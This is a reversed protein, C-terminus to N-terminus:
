KLFLSFSSDLLIRPLPFFLLQWFRLLQRYNRYNSELCQYNANYLEEWWINAESRPWLNTEITKYLRSWTTQRKYEILFRVKQQKLIKIPDIKALQFFQIERIIKAFCDNQFNERILAFSAFITFILWRSFLDERFNIGNLSYRHLMEPTVQIYPTSSIKLRSESGPTCSFKHLLTVYALEVAHNKNVEVNKVFKSIMIISKRTKVFKNVNKPYSQQIHLLLIWWNNKM